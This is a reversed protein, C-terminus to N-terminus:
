RRGLGGALSQKEARAAKLAAELAAILERQSRHGTVAIRVGGAQYVWPTTSQGLTLVPAPAPKKRLDDGKIKGAAADRALKRHESKPRKAIEYATTPRIEGKDVAKQVSEPLELLKLAKAVRSHELHLHKAMERIGWGERKMIAQYARAEEIPQLDERLINEILQVSRVDGSKCVLCQITAMGALKAARWRREGTVLVYRSGEKRVLVPHLQSFRRFSEALRVLGEEGFDKRPQEPDPDILDPSLHLIETRLRIKVTDALSAGMEKVLAFNGSTM